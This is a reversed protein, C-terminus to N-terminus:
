SYMWLPPLGSPEGMSGGHSPFHCSAPSYFLYLFHFPFHSCIAASERLVTMHWSGEATERSSTASLLLIQSGSFNLHRVSLWLVSATNEFTSCIALKASNMSLQKSIWTLSVDLSRERNNCIIKM